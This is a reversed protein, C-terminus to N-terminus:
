YYRSSCIKPVTIRCLNWSLNKPVKGFMRVDRALIPGFWECRGVRECSRTQKLHKTKVSDTLCGVGFRCSYAVHDWGKKSTAM